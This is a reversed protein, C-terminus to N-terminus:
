PSSDADPTSDKPVRRIDDILRGTKEDITVAGQRLVELRGDVFKIVTSPPRGSLDGGEVYFDVSDGFYAIAEEVTNAPPQSFLNASSTALPGTAELLEQLTDEKPIRVALSHKGLDLREWGKHTPVVVSVPNPWLHTVAQLAEAELGLALLQRATAALFTGPKHERRKLQYIRDVAATNAAVAALGYITDTPIVGVKGDKLLAVVRPDSVSPM